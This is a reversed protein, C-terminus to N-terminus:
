RAPQGWPADQRGSRPSTTTMWSPPRVRPAGLEVAVRSVAAVVMGLGAADEGSGPGVDDPVGPTAPRRAANGAPRYAALAPVSNRIM